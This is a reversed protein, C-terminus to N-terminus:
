LVLCALLAQSLGSFIGPYCPTLTRPHSPGLNGPHDLAASGPTKFDSYNEPTKLDSDNELTKFGSYNEPPKLGLELTYPARYQGPHRLDPRICCFYYLDKLGKYKGLQSLLEDESSVEINQNEIKGGRQVWELADDSIARDAAVELESPERTLPLKALEDALATNYRQFVEWSEPPMKLEQSKLPVWRASSHSFYFSPSSPLTSSLPEFKLTLPLLFSSPNLRWAM